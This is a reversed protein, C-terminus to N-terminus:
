AAPKDAPALRGMASVLEATTLIEHAFTPGDINL